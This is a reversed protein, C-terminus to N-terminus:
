EATCAIDHAQLLARFRTMSAVEDPGLRYIFNRLYDALASASGLEPPLGITLRALDQDAEALSAILFQGLWQARIPDLDRRVSWCAFVFPLGTWDCWESALDMAQVFGEPPRARWRLALDGIVLAASFRDDIAVDGPFSSPRPLTQREYASPKVGHRVELLLRLLRVSTSSEDTLAIRAGHLADLDARDLTLSPRRGTLPRGGEVDRIFLLVSDVRSRCAIGLRLTDTKVEEADDDHHPLAADQRHFARSRHETQFLSIELPAVSQELRILDAVPLLGADADGADMSIGLQRPPLAMSVWRGESGSELAAWNAYYPVSNLYPIQIVRSPRDLL